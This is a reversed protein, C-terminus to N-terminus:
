MLVCATLYIGRPLANVTDIHIQVARVGAGYEQDLERAKSDLRISEETAKAALVKIKESSLFHPLQQLLSGARLGNDHLQVSKGTGLRSPSNSM